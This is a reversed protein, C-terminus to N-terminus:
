VSVEVYEVGCVLDHMHVGDVFVQLQREPVYSTITIEFSAAGIAPVLQRVQQQTREQAADTDTDTDDGDELETDTDDALDEIAPMETVAIEVAATEAAMTHATSTQTPGGSSSHPALQTPGGGEAAATTEAATTEAHVQLQALDRRKQADLDEKAVSILRQVLEPRRFSKIASLEQGYSQVLM